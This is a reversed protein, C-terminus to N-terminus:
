AGRVISRCLTGHRAPRTVDSVSVYSEGESSSGTTQVIAPGRGGLYHEIGNGLGGVVVSTLNPDTMVTVTYPVGTRIRESSSTAPPWHVSPAGANELVLRVRNTGTPVLQLRATGYTLLTVPDDSVRVPRTFSVKMTHNFSPSQEVPDWTEHQLQQGPVTKYTFGTSVYLGSCGNAAFLTGAPAWYPLSSGQELLSSQAGAGFSRQASVFARGQATTWLASPTVAAGVNAWVGFVAVMGIAGLVLGRTRRGSGEVRRWVDVLGVISALALVPLFDALYRDAIYGFLLVGATAAGAAVLLVSTLRVRGAPRPGFAAVLGWLGLLFLLPM